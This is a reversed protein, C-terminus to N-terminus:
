LNLDSEFYYFKLTDIRNRTTRPFHKGLPDRYLRGKSIGCLGGLQAREDDRSLRYWRRM